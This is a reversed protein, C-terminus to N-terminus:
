FLIYLLFIFKVQAVSLINMSGQFFFEEKEKSFSAENEWKKEPENTLFILVKIM